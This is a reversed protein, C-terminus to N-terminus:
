VHARGIQLQCGCFDHFTYGGGSLACYSQAQAWSGNVNLANECAVGPLGAANNNTIDVTTLSHRPGYVGATNFYQGNSVVISSARANAAAILTAVVTVALLALPRRSPRSLRIMTASGKQVLRNTTAAPFM